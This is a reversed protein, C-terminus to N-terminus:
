EGNPTQNRAAVRQRLLQAYEDWFPHGLDELDSPDVGTRVLYAEQFAKDELMDQRARADMPRKERQRLLVYM